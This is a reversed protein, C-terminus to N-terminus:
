VGALQFTFHKTCCDIYGRQRIPSLKQGGRTHTMSEECYETLTHYTGVHFLNSNLDVDEVVPLLDSALLNAVRSSDVASTIFM